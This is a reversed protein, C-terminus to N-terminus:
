QTQHTPQFLGGPVKARSTSTLGEVYEVFVSDVQLEACSTILASESPQEDMSPQHLESGGLRHSPALSVQYIFGYLLILWKVMALDALEAVLVNSYGFCAFLEAVAVPERRRLNELSCPVAWDSGYERKCGSSHLLRGVKKYSVAVLLQPRTVTMQLYSTESAPAM